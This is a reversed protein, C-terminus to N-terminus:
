VCTTLCPKEPSPPLFVQFGQFLPPNLRDNFPLRLQLKGAFSRQKFTKQSERLETFVKGGEDGFPIYFYGTRFGACPCFAFCAPGSYKL